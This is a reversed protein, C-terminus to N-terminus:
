GRPRRGPRLAGTKPDTLRADRAALVRRAVAEADDPHARFFDALAVALRERVFTEAEPHSLVEKTPADFTPEHLNVAVALALGATYDERGLAFRVDPVLGREALYARLTQTIASRAGAVHSGGQSTFYANAYSWTREEASALWRLAVEVERGEEGCRLHFAHSHAPRDGPGDPLLDVLGHASHFVEERPLTSRRDRLRITLGVHLCALERLRRAIREVDFPPVPEFIQPDPWFAISTGAKRTKGVAQISACPKGRQYEQRWSKGERCVELLLRESLANVAKLGIGHLNGALPFGLPGAVRRTFFTTLALEAFARGERPVIEVPIGRGNDRVLCGGDAHLEVEITTCFGARAEAVANELVSFVLHRLGREGTDGIYMGPRERIHLCDRLVTVEELEYQAGGEDASDTSSM